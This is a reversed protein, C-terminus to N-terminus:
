LLDEVSNGDLLEDYFAREHKNFDRLFLRIAGRLRKQCKDCVCDKKLKWGSTCGFCIEAEELTNESGCVPCIETPQPGTDRDGQDELYYRDVVKDCATCIYHGFVTESRM